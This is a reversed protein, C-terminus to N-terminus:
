DILFGYKRFLDIAGEQQRTGFKSYGPSLNIIRHEGDELDALVRGAAINCMGTFRKLIDLRPKRGMSGTTGRLVIQERTNVPFRPHRFGPDPEHVIEVNFKVGEHWAVSSLFDLAAQSAPLTGVIGGDATLINIKM